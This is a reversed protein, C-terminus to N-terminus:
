GKISNLVSLCMRPFCKTMPMPMSEILTKCELTLIERKPCVYFIYNWKIFFM